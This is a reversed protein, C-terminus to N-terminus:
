LVAFDKQKKAHKYSNSKSLILKGREGPIALNGHRVLHFQEIGPIIVRVCTVGNESQYHTAFFIELSNDALIALLKDLMEHFCYYKQSSEFFDSRTLHGSQVFSRLDCQACKRLKPWDRFKELILEDETQLDKDYLHFSQLAELIAREVAYTSNLSAGFGLPQIAQNQKTFTALFVPLQLDSTIDAVLIEESYDEEIKRILDIIMAPLSLKNVIKMSDPAEKCFTSLLFCSIADRELLENIAHIMAEEISAGIATGNNTSLGYVASYDLTDFSFRKSLYDPNILFYPLLLFSDHQYAKLCIWPVKKDKNLSNRLNYPIMKINSGSLSSEIEDFSCILYKEQLDSRQTSVFHELAEYKASIESQKGVGKGNGIDAVSNDQNFLWCRTTQPSNGLYSIRCTLNLKALEEDFLMLSKQPSCVREYFSM